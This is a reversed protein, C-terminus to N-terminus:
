NIVAMGLPLTALDIFGNIRNSTPDIVSLGGRESDTVYLWRRSQSAAMEFPKGKVSIEGSVNFQGPFM